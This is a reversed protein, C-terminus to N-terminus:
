TLRKPPRGHFPNEAHWRAGFAILRIIAPLIDLGKETMIWQVPGPARTKVRRAIMGAEELERLRRSLIRSNLEPNSRLLGSFRDVHRLGIDALILLAWKRGLVGLDPKIPRAAFFESKTNTTNQRRM